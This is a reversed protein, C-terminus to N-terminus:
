GGRAGQRWWAADGKIQVVDLHLAQTGRGRVQGRLLLAAPAAPAQHVQEPGETTPSGVHARLGVEARAM